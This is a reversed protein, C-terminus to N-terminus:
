DDDNELDEINIIANPDESLIDEIKYLIWDPCSNTGSSWCQRCANDKDKVDCKEVTNGFKDKYKKM